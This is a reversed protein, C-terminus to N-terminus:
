TRPYGDVEETALRLRHVLETGEVNIAHEVRTIRLIRAPSRSGPWTGPDINDGVQFAAWPTASEFAVWLESYQDPRRIELIHRVPQM